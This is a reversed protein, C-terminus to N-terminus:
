EPPANMSFSAAIAAVSRHCLLEPNDVGRGQVLVKFTDGMGSDPVILNKLTMRLSM